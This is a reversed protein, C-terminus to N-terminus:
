GLRNMRLDIKKSDKKGQKYAAPDCPNTEARARRSTPKINNQILYSNAIQESIQRYTQLQITSSWKPADSYYKSRGSTLREIHADLDELPDVTENEKVNFDPKVCIEDDDNAKLDVSEGSESSSSSFTGTAFDDLSGLRALEAKREAIEQKIKAKMKISESATAQAEEMAKEKEALRLLGESAGLSYSNKSGVGRYPRAWETITNYALELAVAAAVTNEAIGYFTLDLSWSRATSYFKCSFFCQLAECLIELNTQFRVAKSKDGDRRTISVTSQGAHYKQSSTLEYILVQEQTINHQEMLRSALFLAAKAESESSSRHHGRDLCKKIRGLIGNDANTTFFGAQLPGTDALQKVKAKYLVPTLRPAARNHAVRKHPNNNNAFYKASCEDIDSPLRLEEFTGKRKAM